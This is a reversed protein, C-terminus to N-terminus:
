IMETTGGMKREKVGCEKKRLQMGGADCGLCGDSVRKVTMMYPM